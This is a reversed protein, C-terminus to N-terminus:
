NNKRKEKFLSQRHGSMWRRLRNKQFPDELIYSDLSGYKSIHNKQSDVLKRLNSFPQEHEEIGREIFKTRFRALVPGYPFSMMTGSISPGWLDWTEDTVNGSARLDLQDECLALYDWLAVEQQATLSKMAEDIKEPDVLNIRLDIGIRDIIQWYRTMYIDEHERRRVYMSARVGLFTTFVAIVLAGLALLNGTDM